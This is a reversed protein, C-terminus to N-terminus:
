ASLTTKYAHITEQTCKQWSFKKAQEISKLSMTKQLSPNRYIELMSQCLADGDAPPVMIGADGVVEPLSSTNATIVPVGCQMAELPPLGFGEYFSPFVFALAGSYLAALNENAVYGTIIIRERLSSVNSLTDFIGDYGWSRRGIIVLCLDKIKEKEVLRVFCRITHAINKRPELTNLSLIYPADPIQFKRKVSSIKESDHCPYFIDSAALHTVFVRSPDISKQYNCLDNKTSHSVCIIWDHSELSNIVQEVSSAYDFEYFQPYLLPILDHITVIRKISKPLTECEPFPHFPSHYLDIASLANASLRQISKDARRRAYCLSERLAKFAKRLTSFEFASETHDLMRNIKGTVKKYFDKEGGLSIFPIHGLKQNKQLYEIAQNMNELSLSACFNVECDESEALGLAINEVVRYIGTRFHPDYHGRGLVAIDYLVKMHTKV